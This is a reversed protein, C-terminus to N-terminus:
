LARVGDRGRERPASAGRRSGCTGVAGVLGYVPPPGGSCRGLPELRSGFRHPHYAKQSCQWPARRQDQLQSLWVPIARAEDAQLVQHMRTPSVGTARAIQRISPGAGAQAAVIAWDTQARRRGVADHGRHLRAITPNSVSPCVAALSGPTEMGPLIATKGEATCFVSFQQVRSEARRSSMGREKRTCGERDQDCGRIGGCIKLGLLLLLNRADYNVTM